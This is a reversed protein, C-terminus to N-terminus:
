NRTGLPGPFPQSGIYAARPRFRLRYPYEELAHAIWGACRAIAFIAEGSGPVMSAVQTLAALAFDINPYPGGRAAMVALVADPVALSRSAPWGARILDMLTTARPDPGTYVRHGFGPIPEGRRLREGIAQEASARAQAEAPSTGASADAFLRLVERSAAGHLPGGIVGLGTLIVLYPDAWTSAAIRAALTSAALEHDALLVMAGDLAALHAPRPTDPSLKRWLRLALSPPRSDKSAARATTRGPVRGRAGGAVPGAAADPLCEVISALLTRATAIVAQPERDNRLPDITAIAATVARIRDVPLASFPLAADVARGVAVAQPTTEFAPGSSRNPVTASWLWQAVEEFTSTRAADTADWGRYYLCGAPDLSTLETDVVIELAASRGGSRSRAALREVEGAEFRSERGGPVRHSTIMGRSVYAYLTTPQVHMRAAAQATTLWRERDRSM